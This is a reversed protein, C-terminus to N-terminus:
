MYTVLLPPEYWYRYIFYLMTRDTNIKLGHNTSSPPKDITFKQELLSLGRELMLRLWAEQQHIETRQFGPM